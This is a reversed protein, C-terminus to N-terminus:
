LLGHYEDLPFFILDQFFHPQTFLFRKEKMKSLLKLLSRLVRPHHIAEALSCSLFYQGEEFVNVLWYEKEGENTSGANKLGHRLLVVMVLIIIIILPITYRRSSDRDTIVIFIIIVIIITITTNSRCPNFNCPIWIKFM